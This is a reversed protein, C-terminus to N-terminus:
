RLFSKSSRGSRAHNLVVVREDFFEGFVQGWGTLDPRDAPPNPYSAVTSDGIIAVRLEGEEASAHFSSNGPSVYLSLLVAAPAAWRLMSYM